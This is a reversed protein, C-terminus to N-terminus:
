RPGKQADKGDGASKIAGYAYRLGAILGLAMFVLPLFSTGLRRDLRSGLFVGILAPIVVGFGVETFLTLSRLSKWGDGM